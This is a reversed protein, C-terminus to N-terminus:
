PAPLGTITCTYGLLDDLTSKRSVSHGLGRSSIFVESRGDMSRLRLAYVDSGAKMAPEPHWGAAALERTMLEANSMPNGPATFEIEYSGPSANSLKIDRAGAPLKLEALPWGSPYEGRYTGDGCACLVALLLAMIGSLGAQRKNRM